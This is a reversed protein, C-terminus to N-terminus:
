EINFNAFYLDDNDGKLDLKAYGIKSLFEIVEKHNENECELQILCDNGKLLEKSGRLVDMESREVDIKIAIKQDRIVLITDIKKQEVRIKFKGNLDKSYNPSFEEDVSFEVESEESGIAVNYTEINKINNNISMKKIRDINKQFVDFSLVKIRPNKKAIQLSYLGWCSGIDLFYGTEYNQIHNKLIRINKTDYGYLFFRRDVLYRLDLNFYINDYKYSIEKFSLKKLISPVLRKLIPLSLLFKLM